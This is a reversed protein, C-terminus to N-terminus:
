YYSTRYNLRSNIDTVDCLLDVKLIASMLMYSLSENIVVGVNFDLGQSALSHGKCLNEIM